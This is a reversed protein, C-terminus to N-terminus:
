CCVNNRDVLKLICENAWKMIEFGHLETQLAFIEKFKHYYRFSGEFFVETYRAEIERIKKKIGANENTIEEDTTKERIAEEIDLKQMLTILFRNLKSHLADLSHAFQRAQLERQAPESPRALKEILRV